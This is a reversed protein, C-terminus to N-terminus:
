AAATAAVATPLSPSTPPPSTRVRVRVLKRSPAAASSTSAGDTTPPSSDRAPKPQEPLPAVVVGEPVPPPSPSGAAAPKEQRRRRLRMQLQLVPTAYKQRCARALEVDADPDLLIVPKIAHRQGLPKARPIEVSAWMARLGTHARAPPASGRPAYRSMDSLHDVPDLPAAFLLSNTHRVPLGTLPSYHVQPLGGTAKNIDGQWRHWGSHGLQTVCCVHPVIGIMVLFRCFAWDESLLRGSHFPDPIVIRKDDPNLHADDIEVAFLYIYYDESGPNYDKNDPRYKRSAYAANIRPVVSRHVLLFGTGLEAVPAWGDPSRAIHGNFIYRILLPPVLKSWDANKDLTDIHEKLANWDYGKAPYPCGCVPYKLACAYIARVFGEDTFDIDTDLQWLIDINGSPLHDVLRSFEAWAKCRGRPILSEAIHSYEALTWGLQACLYHARVVASHTTYHMQGNLCPAYVMIGLRLKPFEAPYGDSDYIIVSGPKSASDIRLLPASGLQQSQPVAVAM